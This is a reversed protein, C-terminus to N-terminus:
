ILFNVNVLQWIMRQVISTDSSFKAVTKFEKGSRYGCFFGESLDADGKRCVSPIRLILIRYGRLAVAAGYTGNLMGKM